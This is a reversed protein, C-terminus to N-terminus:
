LGLFERIRELIPKQNQQIQLYKKVCTRIDSHENDFCHTVSTVGCTPILTEQNNYAILLRNLACLQFLTPKKSVPQKRHNTNGFDANLWALFRSKLPSYLTCKHWLVEDSDLWVHSLNKDLALHPKYNSVLATITTENICNQAVLDLIVLVSHRESSLSITRNPIDNDKYYNIHMFAFHKDPSFLISKTFYDNTTAPCHLQQLCSIAYTTGIKKACLIDGNGSSVIFQDDYPSCHIKDPVFNKACIFTKVLSISNKDTIDYICLTHTKDERMITILHNDDYSFALDTCIGRYSIDISSVRTIFESFMFHTINNGNKQGCQVLQRSNHALLTKINSFLHTNPQSFIKCSNTESTLDITCLLNNGKKDELLIYSGDNSATARQISWPLRIKQVIYRNHQEKKWLLLTRLNLDKLTVIYEHLEQPSYENQILQQFRLFIVYKQEAPITVVNKEGCYSLSIDTDSLSAYVVRTDSCLMPETEIWAPIDFITGHECSILKKKYPFVTRRDLSTREALNHSRIIASRIRYDINQKMDNCYSDIYDQIEQPFYSQVLLATLSPSNLHSCGATKILTRRDKPSLQTFFHHFENELTTSARYFLALGRGTIHPAKFHHDSNHLYEQHLTNSAYILDYPIDTTIGKKLAIVCTTQM